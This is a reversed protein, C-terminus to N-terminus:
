ILEWKKYYWLFFEILILGFFANVFPSFIFYKWDGIRINLFSTMTIYILIYLLSALFVVLLKVKYLNENVRKNLWGCFYGISTFCLTYMGFINLHLFDVIVGLLFGTITSITHSFFLATFVIYILWQNPRIYYPLFQYTTIELLILMIFIIFSSLIKKM